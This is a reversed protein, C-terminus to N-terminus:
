SSHTMGYAQTGQEFRYVIRNEGETFREAQFTDM